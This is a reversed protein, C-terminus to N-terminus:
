IDGHNQPVQPPGTNNTPLLKTSQLTWSCRSGLLIGLLFCMGKASKFDHDETVNIKFRKRWWKPFLFRGFRCHYRTDIINLSDFPPTDVVYRATNWGPKRLHRAGPDQLCISKSWQWIKHNSTQLPSGHYILSCPVWHLSFTCTAVYRCSKKNGDKRGQFNNLAPLGFM